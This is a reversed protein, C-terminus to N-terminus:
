HSSRRELGVVYLGGVALDFHAIVRKGFMNRDRVDCFVENELHQLLIGFMSHGNLFHKVVLKEIKGNWIGQWGGEQATRGISM